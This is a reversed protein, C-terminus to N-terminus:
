EGKYKFTYGGTTKRKGKLVSCVHGVQLGMQRACESLSYYEVGTEICIIPKGQSIATRLMATGHNMNESRTCWELNEVRNNEKDEDIHNVQPKNQPNPIFAQAVLRHIYYTYPTGNKYLQVYKYGNNKVRSKLIKHYRFVSKVRGHTSVQYLGEYGEIDKWVEELLYIVGTRNM